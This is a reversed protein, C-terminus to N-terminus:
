LGFYSFPQNRVKSESHVIYMDDSIDPNEFPFVDKKEQLSSKNNM